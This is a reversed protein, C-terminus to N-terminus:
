RPEPLIWTKNSFGERVQALNVTPDLLPRAPRGNLTVYVDAYVAVTHGQRQQEDRLYHAFHLLMDPQTSMAKEQQPTLYDRVRVQTTRQTQADVVRFEASGMKEMLMVRWGFRYGQEHWQLNGGYLHGRLPVLLQAGIFLAASIRATANLAPKAIRSPPSELRPAVFRAPLLRELWPRVANPDLFVISGAIMFYPFMGINFLQATLLHFFVVALYALVRTRRLSLWLPVTLDYAAGFLSAAYATVPYRFLAGLVPLDTNAALWVRMPMAHLLWDANLKALGAFFYVCALQIRFMWLWWAPVTQRAHLSPRLALAGDAPIFVLLGTLLTVLWYHNLYNTLDVFHAYTFLICFLAACGRVYIGLAIALGLVVQAVYVAHMGFLPLPRLIAELPWPSFFFHPIAFAQRVYGKLLLRASGFCLLLGFLFRFLALTGVDVWRECSLELQKRSWM